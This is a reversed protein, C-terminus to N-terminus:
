TMSIIRSETVVSNMAVDHEAVPLIDIIMVDFAVGVRQAKTQKLFRDYYGTGYGLRHGHLDFALGPVIVLDIEDIDSPEGGPESLGFPGAALTKPDGDYRCFRLGRPEQIVRPLYVRRNHSLADNIIPKIDIELTMPWYAAVGTARKYQELGLINQCIAGSMQMQEESSLVARREKFARRLSEKKLNPM